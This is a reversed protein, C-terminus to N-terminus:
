LRRSWGGFWFQDDADVFQGVARPLLTLASVALLRQGAGANQAQAMPESTFCVILDTIQTRKIPMIPRWTSMVEPDHPVDLLSFFQCLRLQVFTRNSGHRRSSHTIASAPGHRNLSRM